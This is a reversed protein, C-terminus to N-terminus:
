RRPVRQSYTSVRAASRVGVVAVRAQAEVMLFIEIVTDSAIGIMTQPVQSNRPMRSYWRSRIGLPSPFGMLMRLNVVSMGRGMAGAETGLEGVLDTQMSSM